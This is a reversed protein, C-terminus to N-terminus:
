SLIPTGWVAAVEMEKAEKPDEGGYLTELRIRSAGKLPVSIEKKEGAKRIETVAPKDEAGPVGILWVNFKIIQRSDGDDADVGITTTLTSYESGIGYEISSPHEVCQRSCNTRISHHYIKGDIRPSKDTEVWGKPSNSPELNVLFQQGAPLSAPNSPDSSDGNSGPDATVTVTTTATATAAATSTATVTAEAHGSQTDGYNLRIIWQTILTATVGAVVGVFIGATISPWSWPHNTDTM